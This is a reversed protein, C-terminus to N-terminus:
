KSRSTLATIPYHESPTPFAWIYINKINHIRKIVHASIMLNFFTTDKKIYKTILKFSFKKLGPPNCLLLFPSRLLVIRDLGWYETIGRSVKIDFIETKNKTKCFLRSYLEQLRGGSYFSLNMNIIITWIWHYKQSWKKNLNQTKWLTRSYRQLFVIWDLKRRLNTNCSM